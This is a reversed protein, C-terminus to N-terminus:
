PLWCARRSKNRGSVPSIPETMLIRTSAATHHPRSGAKRPAPPAVCCLACARRYPWVRRPCTGPAVCCVTGVFLTEIPPAGNKAGQSSGKPRAARHHYCCVSPM